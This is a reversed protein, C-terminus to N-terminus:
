KSVTVHQGSTDAAGVQATQNPVLFPFCKTSSAIDGGTTFLGSTEQHGADDNLLLVAQTGHFIDLMYEQNGPTLPDSTKNVPFSFSRPLFARISPAQSVQAPDFTVNFPSCQAFNGKLDYFDTKAEKNSGGHNNNGQKMPLCSSDSSPQVGIVDSVLGMGQGNADDLSAVFQKGGYFPLFSIEAAGKFTTNDWTGIPIPILIPNSSFPVITLTLPLAPPATGPVGTFNVQFSGCQRVQSFNVAFFSCFVAQTLALLILLAAAPHM